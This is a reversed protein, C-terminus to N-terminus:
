YGLHNNPVVRIVKTTYPLRSMEEAVVLRQRSSAHIVIGDGAYLGVHLEGRGNGNIFILDGPRRDDVAIEEGTLMQDHSHKPLVVGFAERYIAQMLGSCDIGSKTVGGLLYPAGRYENAADILVRCNGNLHHSSVAPSATSSVSANGTLEILHKPTWGLTGDNLQLLIWGNREFLVRFTEEGAKVQTSLNRQQESRSATASLPRRYVNLLSGVNRGWGTKESSGWEALAEIECRYQRKRALHRAATKQVVNRQSKLLVYGHVYVETQSPDEHCRIDWVACRYHREYAHKLRALDRRLEAVDNSRRM